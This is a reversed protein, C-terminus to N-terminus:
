KFGQNYSIMYSIKNYYYLLLNKNKVKKTLNNLNLYNKKYLSELIKLPLEQLKM